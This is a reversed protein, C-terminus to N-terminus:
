LELQKANPIIGTKWYEISLCIQKWDECFARALYNWTRQMIEAKFSQTDKNKDRRHQLITQVPQDEIGDQRLIDPFTCIGALGTAVEKM